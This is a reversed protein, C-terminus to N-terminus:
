RDKEKGDQNLKTIQRDWLCEFSFLDRLRCPLQGREAHREGASFFYGCCVPMRFEDPPM